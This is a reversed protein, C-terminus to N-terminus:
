RRMETLIELASKDSKWAQGIKRALTDWRKEWDDLSRPQSPVTKLSVLLAEPVGEPSVLTITEGLKLQELLSCLDDQATEVPVSVSM